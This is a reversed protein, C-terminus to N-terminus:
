MMSLPDIKKVKRKLSAPSIILKVARFQFFTKLFSILLRFYLFMNKVGNFRLGNVTGIEYCDCTQLQNVEM